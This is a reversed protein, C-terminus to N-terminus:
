NSRGASAIWANVVKASWRPSRGITCTPEPFQPASALDRDETTASGRMATQRRGTSRSAMVGITRTPAVKLERLRDFTRRSISLVSCIDEITFLSDNQIDFGM